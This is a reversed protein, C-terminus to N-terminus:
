KTNNEAAPIDIDLWRKLAFTLKEKDEPTMNRIRAGAHGQGPLFFWLADVKESPPVATASWTDIGGYIYIFRDGKTQLWNFAAATLEHNFDVKMKGPTLAASPHPKLPLAKLLGSFEETRYGYYGMESAAQYYHSAFARIDRDSFLSIDSVDLLHTLSSELTATDSPILSCDFGWQWFAFPYELVTYEFAEEFTLYTFQLKAGACYFKLLPLVDDRHQLLRTQLARVKAHCEDTGITDLFAYIRKDEAELNFPAVYPISVDVDSPYFYRYYITTQGGKSIGTSIWKDPYLNRLLENIRHLDATSQKLNLYNYDLSDPCSEGFYRHEALIQNANLMKTLEYVANRQCDYGETVFVTPQGFGKHSLYAKQYFYGKGPNFHDVPQRIKLEYASQFGQPTEVQRFIVDPLLFLRNETENEQASSLQALVSLILVPIFTKMIM